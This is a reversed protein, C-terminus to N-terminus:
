LKIKSSCIFIENEKPPVTTSTFAAKSLQRLLNPPQKLAMVIQSDQFAAQLRHDTANHLLQNSLKVTRDIKMNSNHTTVFPITQRKKEPDPGPGQLRANHIGKKVVQPPYDCAILYGELQKLRLEENEYIYVFEVIKRALRM